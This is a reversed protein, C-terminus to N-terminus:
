ESSTKVQKKGILKQWLANLTGEQQKLTLERDLQSTYTQRKLRRYLRYNYLYGRVLSLGRKPGYKIIVNTAGQGYFRKLLWDKQQRSKPVFHYILAKPNYYVHGGSAIIRNFLDNDAGCIFMRGKRSLDERVGGQQLFADKDFAVNMTILYEDSTMFRAQDGFDYRSLLAEHEKPFWEARGGEWDLLCKGTVAIPKPQEMVFPAVIESLCNDALILDDDYYAIYQGRALRAGTNRAIAVGQRGEYHYYLKKYKTQLRKVIQSTNDTSANDIVWVEFSGMSFDQNFISRLTKELLDDRNYTCVLVSLLPAVSESM